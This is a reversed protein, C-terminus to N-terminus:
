ANELTLIRAELADNKASLEKIAQIEVGHLGEYCVSKLGKDSESVLDSFVTTELEQALVGFRTIAGEEEDTNFGLEPASMMNFSVGRM